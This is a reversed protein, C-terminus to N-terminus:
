SGSFSLHRSWVAITATSQFLLEPMNSKSCPHTWAHTVSKKKGVTVKSGNLSSDQFKM